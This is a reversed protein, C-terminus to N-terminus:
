EGGIMSALEVIADELDYNTSACKVESRWISETNQEIYEKTYPAVVYVEDYEWYTYTTSDKDTDDIVDEVQKINNRLRIEATGDKNLEYYIAEPETASKVGEYYM